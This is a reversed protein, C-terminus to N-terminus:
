SAKGQGRISLPHLDIDFVDADATCQNNCMVNFLDAFFKVATEPGADFQEDTAFVRRGM